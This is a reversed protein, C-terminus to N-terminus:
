AQARQHPKYLPTLSMESLFFIVCLRRSTAKFPPILLIRVSNCDLCISTIFVLLTTISYVLFPRTLFPLLNSHVNFAVHLYVTCHSLHDKVSLTIQPPNLSEPSTSTRCRQFNRIYFPNSVFTQVWTAIILDPARRGAKWSLQAFPILFLFSVWVREERKWSCAVLVSHRQALEPSFSFPSSPQPSAVPLM